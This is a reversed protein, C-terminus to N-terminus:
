AGYKVLASTGRMLDIKHNLHRAQLNARTMAFTRFGHDFYSKFATSGPIRPPWSWLTDYAQVLKADLM